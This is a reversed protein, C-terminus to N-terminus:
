VRDYVGLGSSSPLRFLWASFICSIFFMFFKPSFKTLKNTLKDLIFSRLKFLFLSMVSNQLSLPPIHAAVNM